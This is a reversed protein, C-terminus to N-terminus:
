KGSGATLGQVIYRQTFLLVILVPISIIVSAAAMQNWYVNLGSVLDVLATSVTRNRGELLAVAFPYESWVLLFTMLGTTTMGIRALPLFVKRFSQFQSCGDLKAAEDLEFPISKAFSLSLLTSFPLFFLVLLLGYGFLSNYLGISNLLLYMPIVLAPGNFLQVIILLLQVPQLLRGRLRSLSYGMLTGWLMVVASVISSVLTTNVFYQLWDNSFGKSLWVERYASLDVREPLLTLPFRYVEAVSRFSILLLWLVPFLVIFLLIAALLLEATTGLYKRGPNRM